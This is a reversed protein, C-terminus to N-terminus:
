QGFNKAFAAVGDLYIGKKVNKARCVLLFGVKKGLLDEMEQFTNKAKGGCTCFFAAKKIGAKNQSIFTRVAISMTGAWVPTGIIVLDYAGPDKSLPGLDTLEKKIAGRGARLWGIIGSRKKQDILEELDAKLFDAIAAAVKKTTGTRSYFVVLAKM